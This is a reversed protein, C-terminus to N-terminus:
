DRVILPRSLMLRAVKLDFDDESQIPFYDDPIRKVMEETDVEQGQFRYRQQTGIMKLFEDPSAIPYKLTPLQRKISTLEQPIDVSPRNERILEAMKEIFNEQSHIPFYYAPMYKIMRLPDVRMGVIEVPRGPGGLKEILEAASGIPYELPPLQEFVKMVERLDAAGVLPTHKMAPLRKVLEQVEPDERPDFQAM